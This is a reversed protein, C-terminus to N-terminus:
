QLKTHIEIRSSLTLHVPCRNAIALLKARQDEDLSGYLAIERDIVTLRADQTECKACDDSYARSHCLRVTVHELPWKRRRAYMAITMSTCSGLAGLLLDYPTPGADTGGVSTPEDSWLQHAGAIVEQVFGDAAGRVLVLGDDPQDSKM